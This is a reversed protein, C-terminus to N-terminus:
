AFSCVRVTSHSDEYQWSAMDRQVSGAIPLLRGTLGPGATATVKGRHLDHQLPRCTEKQSALICRTLVYKVSEWRKAYLIALTRVQYDLDDFGQGDIRFLEHHTSDEKGVIGWVNYHSCSCFDLLKETKMM